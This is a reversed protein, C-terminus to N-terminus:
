WATALAAVADAPREGWADYWFRNHEVDFLVGSRRCGYKAM